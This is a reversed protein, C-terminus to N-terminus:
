EAPIDEGPIWPMLFSFIYLGPNNYTYSYTFLASEEQTREEEPVLTLNKSLKEANMDYDRVYMRVTYGAKPHTADGPSDVAGEITTIRYKGDSLKEVDYVLGVHYAKTAGTGNFSKANGFVVIFGKQPVMTLRNMHEYGDYLKGVGAEKVHVIGPVEERPTDNKGKQPIELQLMLYTVFAGCWGIDTNTRWKSYKNSRKLNAGDTELWEAYALDLLEQIKGPVEQVVETTIDRPGNKENKKKKSAAFASSTCCVVALLLAALRKLMKMTIGDKGPPIPERM